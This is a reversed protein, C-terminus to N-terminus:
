EAASPLQYESGRAADPSADWDDSASAIQFENTPSPELLIDEGEESEALPDISATGPALYDLPIVGARAAGSCERLM